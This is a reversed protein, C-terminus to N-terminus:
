QLDLSLGAVIPRIERWRRRSVPIREATGHLVLEWYADAAPDREGAAVRRAGAIAHRAVLAARHAQVFQDPHDDLLRTLPQETLYEADRTRIRVYKLEARLYLIDPIAVADCGSQPVIPLFRCRSAAYRGAATRLAEELQDARVPRRLTAAVDLMAADNLADEGPGILIIQPASPRKRFEEAFALGSGDPLVVDLVVIQPATQAASTDLVNRASGGDDAEAVIQVPFRRHLARLQTRLRRRAAPDRDM